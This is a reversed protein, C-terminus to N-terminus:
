LDGKFARQALSNFLSDAQLLAEHQQQSFRRILGVKRDFTEQAEMPSSPVPLARLQTMNISALNSTKKACKLFYTKAMNTRIYAALYTPLLKNRNCRVRFIHNQHICDPINAEWVAGRGLKDFDGGETMLIDGHQLRLKKVESPLVEIEKIEALDIFGDQVNAVRIYPVLMTSRGNYKKGKAVGSVVEALTDNGLQPMESVPQKMWKGFTHVFISPILEDAVTVTRRRKRRIL